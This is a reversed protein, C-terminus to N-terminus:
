FTTCIREAYDHAGQASIALQDQLATNCAEPTSSVFRLYQKSDSSVSAVVEFLAYITQNSNFVVETKFHAMGLNNMTVKSYQVAGPRQYIPLDKCRSERQRNLMQRLIRESEIALPDNASVSVDTDPIESVSVDTDSNAAFAPTSKTDSTETLGRRNSQTKAAMFVAILATFIIAISCAQASRLFRSQSVVMSTNYQIKPM